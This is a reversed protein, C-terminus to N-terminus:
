IWRPNALSRAAFAQHPRLGALAGVRDALVREFIPLLGDAHALEWALGMIRMRQQVDFVERVLAGPEDLPTESRDALDVIAEANRRTLGFLGQIGRRITRREAGISDADGYATVRLFQATAIQVSRGVPRGFRDQSLAGQQDGRNLVRAFLRRANVQFGAQPPLVPEESQQLHLDSM